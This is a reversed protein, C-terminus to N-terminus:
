RGTRGSRPRWTSSLDDVDESEARGEQALKRLHAWVSHRAIPHYAAAVDVYVVAVLEDVTARGAERLVGYIAEERAGRHALYEQVKALPDTIVDGHGPVIRVVPPRLTELRRLAQMYAAMDGDPPPIVVTSGSMIHDGSFLTRERELLYCLHNSAHGPTHLATLDFEKTRLRWGEGIETDPEFGDRADFGLVEAGTIEALAAAAPSHDPHTHTVLIWRIAGAGATAVRQVHVDGVPGPDVVAVQDQGILYTNTGPGTFIDPNPALIRRVGAAVTVTAGAVLDPV